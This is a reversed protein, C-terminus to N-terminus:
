SNATYIFIQAVTERRLVCVVLLFTNHHLPQLINHFLLISAANKDVMLEGRRLYRCEVDGSDGVM